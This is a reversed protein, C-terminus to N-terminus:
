GAFLHFGPIFPIVLCKLGEAAPRGPSSQGGRCHPATPIRTSPAERGMGARRSSTGGMGGQLLTPVCLPHPLSGSRALAATAPQSSQVPLKQASGTARAMTWGAYRKAASRLLAPQASSCEHVTARFHNVSTDDKGVWGSGDTRKPCGAARSPM